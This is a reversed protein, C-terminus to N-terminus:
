RRQPLPIHDGQQPAGSRGCPMPVSPFSRDARLTIAGFQALLPDARLLLIARGHCIVSLVVLCFRKWPM